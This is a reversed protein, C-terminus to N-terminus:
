SGDVLVEARIKPCDNYRHGIKQCLSCRVQKVRPKAPAKKTAKSEAPIEVRVWVFLDEGSGIGYRIRSCTDCIVLLEDKKGGLPRLQPWAECVHGCDGICTQVYDFRRAARRGAVTATETAM